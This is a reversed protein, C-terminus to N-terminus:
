KLDSWERRPFAEHFWQAFATREVPTMRFVRDQLRQLRRKTAQRARFDKGIYRSDHLAEPPEFNFWLTEERVDTHTKARFTQTHWGALASRYLDNAYGSLVVMCPLSTLLALLREHDEISYDRSYVRRQRRTHPHYPPDAYVLEDGCFAYECLFDEALGCVLDVGVAGSTSWSSIVKPDADIGVNRVAPLKHRMVSGGGLHTEIYVRHPPMLNIVQQYTKGKGGPFRM